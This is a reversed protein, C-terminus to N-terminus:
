KNLEKPNIGWPLAFRERGNKMEEETIMCNINGVICRCPYRGRNEDWRYHPKMMLDLPSRDIPWPSPEHCVTRYCSWWWDTWRVELYTLSTCVDVLTSYSCSKENHYVIRVILSNIQLAHLNPGMNAVSGLLTAFHEWFRGISLHTLNPLTVVDRLSDIKFSGLALRCLSPLSEAASPFNKLPRFEDLHLETLQQFDCRKLAVDFLCSPFRLARISPISILPLWAYLTGALWGDDPVEVTKVLCLQSLTESLKRLCDKERCAMRWDVYLDEVVSCCTETFRQVILSVEEENCTFHATQAGKTSLTFIRGCKRKESQYLAVLKASRIDMLAGVDVNGTRGNLCVDRWNKCVASCHLVDKVTPLYSFIRKLALSPVIGYDVINTTVVDVQM